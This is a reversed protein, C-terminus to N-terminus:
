RQVHHALYPRFDTQVIGFEENFSGMFVFFLAPGAVITFFATPLDAFTAIRLTGVPIGPNSSMRFPPRSSNEKLTM